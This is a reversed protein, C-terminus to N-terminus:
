PRQKVPIWIEITGTGSRADFNEYREFDPAPALECGSAPLWKNWITNVTRRIASVHGAHRFVAYLQAPIRVRTFDAPLEATEAVAVGCVYDFGGKGDANCCVGYTTTGLQGPINGIHPAFRQWQAPIGSNTDWTYRQSLGAILTPQAEEFRSPELDPLFTQDMTIAEVLSLNAVHRQRRVAEPTLGFQEHFARTFAEHSGYGADLAVALIDSSGAALVRAAESLRRARLYRMVSRGTALGFARTLHFRSVGTAVAIEELTVDEAFHNEIYWIAKNTPNM